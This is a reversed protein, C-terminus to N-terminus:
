FDNNQSRVKRWYKVAETNKYDFNKITEDNQLDKFKQTRESDLIGLLDYMHLFKKEVRRHEIELELYFL